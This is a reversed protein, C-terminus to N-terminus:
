AALHQQLSDRGVRSYFRTFQVGFGGARPIARSGPAVRRVRGSIMVSCGLCPLEINLTVLDALEPTQNAVVYAGGDSLNVIEVQAFDGRYKMTGELLRRDRQGGRRERRVNSSLALQVAPILDM